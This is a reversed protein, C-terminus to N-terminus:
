AVMPQKAWANESPKMSTYQVPSYQKKHVNSADSSVGQLLVQISATELFCVVSVVLSIYFVDTTAVDFFFFVAVIIEFIADIVCLV